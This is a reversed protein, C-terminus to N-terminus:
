SDDIGRRIREVSPRFVRGRSSNRRPVRTMDNFSLFPMNELRARSELFARADDRERNPDYADLHAGSVDMDQEAEQSLICARPGVTGTLTGVIPFAGRTLGLVRVSHPVVQVRVYHKQSSSWYYGTMPATLMQRNNAGVLIMCPADEEVFASLRKTAKAAHASRQAARRDSVFAVQRLNEKEEAEREQMVAEVFARTEAKTLNTNHKAYREPDSRGGAGQYEKLAEIVRISQKEYREKGADINDVDDYLDDTTM